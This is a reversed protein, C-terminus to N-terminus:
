DDARHHRARWRKAATSRQKLAEITEAAPDPSRASLAEAHTHLVQAMQDLYRDMLAANARLLARTVTVRARGLREAVLAHSPHTEHRRVDLWTGYIRAETATWTDMWASAFATPLDVAASVSSASPFVGVQETRLGDLGLGSRVFAEGNASSGRPGLGIGVRVEWRQEPLSAARMGARLAVWADFARM